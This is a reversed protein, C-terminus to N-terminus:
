VFAPPGRSRPQTARAETLRDVDFHRVILHGRPLVAAGAPEVLIALHAGAPGPCLPCCHCGPQTEPPTADPVSQVAGHSTCIVAVSQEATAASASALLAVQSAVVALQLILGATTLGAVLRRLSPYLKM